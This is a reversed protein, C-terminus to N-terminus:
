AHKGCVTTSPLPQLRFLNNCHNRGPLASYQKVKGAVSRHRWLGACYMPHLRHTHGAWLALWTRLISGYIIINDHGPHTACLPWYKTGVSTNDLDPAHFTICKWQTYDWGTNWSAAVYQLVFAGRSCTHAFIFSIISLDDAPCDQNLVWSPFFSYINIASQNIISM